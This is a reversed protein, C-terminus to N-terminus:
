RADPFLMRSLQQTLTSAGQTKRWQLVDKTAARVIGVVDVGWHSEFHRDEISIVANRLVPPIQDYSVIVRHELAFSGIPTGDDAFVETMVDPRYDELERVKPLDSSYVFILGGLAGVGAALLVLILFVFQGFIRRSSVPPPPAARPPEATISLPNNPM